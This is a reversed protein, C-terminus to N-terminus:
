SYVTEPKREGNAEKAKNEQFMFRTIIDQIAVETLVLIRAICTSPDFRNQYGSIFLDLKRNDPQEM